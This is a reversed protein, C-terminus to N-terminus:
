NTYNYIYFIIIFTKYFSIFMFNFSFITVNLLSGQERYADGQNQEVIIEVGEIRKTVVIYKYLISLQHLRYIVLLQLRANLAVARVNRWM